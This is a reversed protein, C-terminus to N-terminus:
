TLTLSGVEFNRTAAFWTTLDTPVSATLIRVGAEAAEKIEKGIDRQVTKPIYHFDDVFVAFESGAIERVVQALGKRRFTRESSVTGQYGAKATAEVKGHAVFPIGAGGGGSVSGEISNTGAEKEVLQEPADMWDLVKSWLDKSTKITAGYVHILNDGVVRRVLVTKGSKSPGSLSIIMKPISLADELRKELNFEGREVYSFTPVDNPTFVDVARVV